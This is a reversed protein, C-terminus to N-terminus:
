AQLEGERPFNYRGYVGFLERAAEDYANAAEIATKFCGLYKRGIGATYRKNEKRFIVGKFGSTNTSDKRRNWQNQSGTVIRLNCKRNDLKILNIHDIQLGVPEGMIFRHMSLSRKNDIDIRIMTLAQWGDRQFCAYWKYQGVRELDDDDILTVQGQTLQITNM